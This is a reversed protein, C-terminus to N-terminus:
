EVAAVQPLSKNGRRADKFCGSGAMNKRGVCFPASVFWPAFTPDIRERLGHIGRAPFGTPECKKREVDHPRGAEAARGFSGHGVGIAFRPFYAIKEHHVAGTKWASGSDIGHNGDFGDSM